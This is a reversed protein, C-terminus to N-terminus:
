EAYNPFITQLMWDLVAKETLEHKMQTVHKDAYDCADERTDEPYSELYNAVYSEYKATYDEESWALENEEALLYLAVNYTAQNIAQQMILSDTIGYFGIFMEYSIGYYSALLHYYDVTQQYFYLYTESPLDALKTAANLIEDAFIAEAVEIKEAELWDLYTTYDNDTYEVVQKNTLVLNQISNLTMTFIVTKGAMDTAHYDTPFTVEVDFTEGVTHGIIGDTFGPIYGNKYDSVFLAVNQATGGSFAVGDLKGVYNINVVDGSQVPRNPNELKPINQLDEYYSLAIDHPAGEMALNFIATFDIEELAIYSSPTLLTYDPYSYEVHKQPAKAQYVFTISTADSDNSTTMKLSNAFKDFTFVYTKEDLVVTFVFDQRTYTTPNIRYYEYYGTTLSYLKIANGDEILEVAVSAESSYWFGWPTYEKPQTTEDPLTTGEPATTGHDIVEVVKCSALLLMAVTLIFILIKKTM